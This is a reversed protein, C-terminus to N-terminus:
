WLMGGAKQLLQVVDVRKIHNKKVEHLDDVLRVAKDIHQQIMNKLKAAQDAKSVVPAPEPDQEPEVEDGYHDINRPEMPKPDEWTGAPEPENAVDENAVDRGSEADQMTTSALQRAEPITLPKAPPDHDVVTVSAKPTDAAPKAPKKPTSEEKKETIMRLADNISAADELHLTRTVNSIQMYQAATKRSYNWNAGLWPLWEGHELQEKIATLCKGCDIADMVTRRANKEVLEAKENAMDKLTEIPLLNMDITKLDKTM